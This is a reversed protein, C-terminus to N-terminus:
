EQKATTIRSFRQMLKQMADDGGASAQASAAPAAAPRRRSAVEGQGDPEAAPSHGRAPLQSTPTDLLRPPQFSCDSASVRRSPEAKVAYPTSTGGRQGAEEEQAAAPAGACPTMALSRPPTIQMSSAGLPSDGLPSAAPRSYSHVRSQPTAAAPSLGCELGDELWAAQLLPHEAAGAVPSAQGLRGPMVSAAASGAPSHRAAAASAAALQQEYASGPHLSFSAISEAICPSAPKAAAGDTGDLSLPARQPSVNEKSPAPSAHVGASAASETNSQSARRRVSSWVERRAAAAEAAADEASPYLGAQRRGAAEAAFAEGLPNSRPPSPPLLELM